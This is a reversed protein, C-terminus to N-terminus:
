LAPEIEAIDSLKVGGDTDEYIYVLAYREKANPVVPAVTCLLCHNTGATVQYAIYSVPTIDSGAFGELAKDLLARIDETIEASEPKNWGGDLGEDTSVLETRGIISANGDLDEYIYVLVYTDENQLEVVSTREACLFCHNKGAVTQSGIYAVPLYEAGTLTEVAKNFVATQEETVAQSESIEWGGVISNGTESVTGALMETLAPDYGESAQIAYSYTGDTWVANYAKGDKMKVTVDMGSVSIVDAEPYENFDGSIDGEQTSKRLIISNDADGYVAQVLDEGIIQIKRGEYGEIGVPVCFSFGAAEEAEEITAMDKIPNPMGIATSEEKEACGAFTCIMAAAMLTKMLKM